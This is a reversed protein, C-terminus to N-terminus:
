CGQYKQKGFYINHKKLCKLISFRRKKELKTAVIM